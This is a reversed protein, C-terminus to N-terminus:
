KWLYFKALRLAKWDSYVSFSKMTVFPVIMTVISYRGRLTHTQTNTHTHTHTINYINLYLIVRNNYRTRRTWPLVSLSADEFRIKIHSPM